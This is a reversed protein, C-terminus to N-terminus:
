LLPNASWLESELLGSLHRQQKQLTFGAEQLAFHHEPLKRISLGTLGAFTWYLVSVSPRAVFRGFYNDPVAFESIVWTAHASVYGRLSSALQSVEETTLCDLFFHTVILDYPQDTNEPRWRRADAQFVRVRDCKARDTLAKLMAPSADVADIQVTSNAGLLRATFRGDGDGLILARQCGLLDALFAYRCRRLWPGFSFLEMWRYIGALRDFNPAPNM